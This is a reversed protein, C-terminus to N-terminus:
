EWLGRGIVGPVGGPFGIGGAFGGMRGADGAGKGRSPDAMGDRSESGNSAEDEGSIFRTSGGRLALM